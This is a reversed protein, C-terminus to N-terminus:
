PIELAVGAPLVRVSPIERLRGLLRDLYDSGIPGWGEGDLGHTNYILWGEPASLLLGLWRDLDQECNGPGFAACTLRAIGPKPLPNIASGATRFARVVTPLWAELEPTSANFPFSYVARDRTFGRLDREFVDLCRLTLEKAEEFPLKTKNAHRWGHPMVEHGRAALENWLGFDGLGRLHRDTSVFDPLHGTALVNFCARLGHREYIAAIAPCSRAFGDDFSLTVLHM